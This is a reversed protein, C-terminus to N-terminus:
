SEKEEYKKHNRYCVIVDEAYHSLLHTKCDKVGQMASLFLVVGTPTTFPHAYKTFRGAKECLALILKLFWQKKRNAKLAIGLATHLAEANEESVRMTLVRKGGRRKVKQLCSPLLKGAKVDGRGIKRVLKIEYGSSANPPMSVLVSRGGGPRVLVANAKGFALDSDEFFFDRFWM